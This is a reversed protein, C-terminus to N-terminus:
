KTFKADEAASTAHFYIKGSAPLSSEANVEGFMMPTESLPHLPLEFIKIQL